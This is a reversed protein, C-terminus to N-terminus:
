RVERVTAEPHRGLDAAPNTITRDALIMATGAAVLCVSVLHAVTLGWIVQENVCSPRCAALCYFV